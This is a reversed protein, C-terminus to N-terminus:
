IELSGTMVTKSSIVGSLYLVSTALLAPSYVPISKSAKSSARKATYAKLLM